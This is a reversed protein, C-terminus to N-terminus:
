LWAISLQCYFKPMKLNIFASIVLNGFHLHQERIVCTESAVTVEVHVVPVHPCCLVGMMNSGHPMVLLEYANPSSNTVM